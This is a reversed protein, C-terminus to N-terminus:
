NLGKSMKPLEGELGMAHRIVKDKALPLHNIASMGLDRILKKLPDNGAFLRKFGEMAGIMKSAETKRWREFARLQQKDGIDLGQQHIDMISEALAAADALGLNVGQGALPHITHAADGIVVVRDDLWQRVYRMKLPYSQRPSDLECLGLRNDFAATVANSFNQNDMALLQQAKDTGVSWVISCLNKQWLPLFALPGDPTFIQRATNNHSEATKISAVIATHEYDWFTVPLNAQQRVYSNAGDAGVVLNATLMEGSALSIIAQKPTFVLKNIKEPALLQISANLEAQQWLASRIAKNEIIHGLQPLDVQRCDFEINAFSDQEWVSMQSYPQLRQSLIGDWAGVAKLINESAYSIASVRLEADGKVQEAGQQSDVVAISLGSDKLALALTLGVMGGGVILLDYNGM